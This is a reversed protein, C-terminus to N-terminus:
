MTCPEWVLFIDYGTCLYPRASVLDSSHRLANLKEDDEVQFVLLWHYYLIKCLNFKEYEIKLLYIYWIFSTAGVYKQETNWTVKTLFNDFWLTLHGHYWLWCAIRAGYLPPCYFCTNMLGLEM